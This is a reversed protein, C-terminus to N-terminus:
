EGDLVPEYFEQMDDLRLLGVRGAGEVSGAGCDICVRDAVEGTGASAGLHLMQCWGDDNVPSRDCVNAYTPIVVTPTHGSVVVPGVGHPGMLGTNSGFFEGRIWLIDEETQGKLMNEITVVDWSGEPEPAVPRIGAHVLIYERGGVSVTEHLPLHKVWRVLETYPDGRLETLNEATVMGGNTCWLMWNHSNSPDELSDIMMREHNGMLTHANPLSRVLQLTDVPNPGRDVMDGLVYLEDEVGLSVQGLVRDLAKVHGHMDSVVYTAM